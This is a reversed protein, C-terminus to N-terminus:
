FLKRWLPKDLRSLGAEEAARFAEAMERSTPARNLTPHSRAEGVPRYQSMINVYTERSIEKALFEMIEETDSSDGPMVLHRVLLGKSAMGLPGTVLDGVQRHMEKVAARVVEGYDPASALEEGTRRKTWKIDPMYIDIIGDLIELTEPSDYGSTNYVLPLRLGRKWALKLAALIQATVHSPTVLNINACGLSQLRLMTAALKHAPQPSGEDRHSIEWNQCFNCHLNCSSFFITGSGGRGVLPAEEGFHPGSSAVSAQLGTRCHGKEGRLRNVGCKRPCLDCAAMRQYAKAIAEDLKGTEAAKSYAPQTM